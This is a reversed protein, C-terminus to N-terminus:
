CARIIASMARADVITFLRWVSVVLALKDLAMPIVRLNVSAHAVCASGELLLELGLEVGEGRPVVDVEENVLLKRDRGPALGQVRELVRGHIRVVNLPASDHVVGDSRVDFVSGWSLILSWM